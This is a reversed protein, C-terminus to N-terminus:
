YFNLNRELTCIIPSHIEEDTYFRDSCPNEPFSLGKIKQTKVESGKKVALSADKFACSGTAAASQRLSIKTLAASKLIERGNM